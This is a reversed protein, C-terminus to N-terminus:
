LGLRVLASTGELCLPASFHPTASLSLSAGYVDQEKRSPAGATGGAAAARLSWALAAYASAGAARPRRTCARRWRRTRRLRPRRSAGASSRRPAARRPAAHRPPWEHAAARPHHLSKRAAREAVSRAPVLVSCAGGGGGGGRAKLSPRELMGLLQTGAKSYHLSGKPIAFRDQPPNFSPTRPGLPPPARCALSGLPCGLRGVEPTGNPRGIDIVRVNSPSKVM